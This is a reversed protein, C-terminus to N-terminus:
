RWDFTKYPFLRAASVLGARDDATAMAVAADVAAVASIAPYPRVEETPRM